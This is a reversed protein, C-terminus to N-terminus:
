IILLYFLLFWIRAKLWSTIDAIIKDKNFDNLLEHKEGPYLIIKKDQTPIKRHMKISSRYNVIKDNNGHIYLIPTKFDGINKHIYRVGKIFMEGLLSLYMYNLMLDDKKNNKLVNPDHALHKDFIKTSIKLNKFPKYSILKFIAMNGPTHTAAAVSVIGDVDHYKAEYINVLGGGMSHGLLFIKNKTRKKENLVISHLVDVLEHFSSLKGREGSSKGHGLHDYTIVDFNKDNLKHALYEYRGSHEAIGHVLIITAVPNKIYYNVQNIM